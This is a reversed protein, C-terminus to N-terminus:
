EPVELYEETSFERIAQDIEDQMDDVTGQVFDRWAPDDKRVGFGIDLPIDPNLLCEEPPPILKIQPFKEAYVPGMPSDLTSVDIRGALLDQLREIQGTAGAVSDITADPYKRKFAQETGTGTLTGVTVDPNNLDDLTNIEDNDAMVLYCTGAQTFTVFDIVELREPTAFLPAVAIDFQDAQLGAVITDWGSNVYRAEVGLEDALRDVILTNPGELRGAQPDEILWPPALAVGGRMEGRDLIAQVTPSQEALEAVKGEAPAADPAAEEADNGCASLLLMAVLVTALWPPIMIRQKM